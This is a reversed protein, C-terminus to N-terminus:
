GHALINLKGGIGTELSILDEIRIGQAIIFTKVERLLRIFSEIDTEDYQYIRLDNSILDIAGAEDLQFVDHDDAFFYMNLYEDLTEYLSEDSFHETSEIQKIKEFLSLISEVHSYLYAQM